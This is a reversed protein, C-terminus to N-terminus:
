KAKRGKAIKICRVLAFILVFLLVPALFILLVLFKDPRRAESPVFTQPVAANEIRRGRVLLRHTNVGYPTCTVLTCFDMDPDIPLTGAEDPLVTNIEDVEYTLVDSLVYLYFIDGVAMKDLHSLLKSSPLGRHGTLFTHTGAGGTPLSTGEMHGVGVQLVGEDTGHYVPLKVDIKGIELVAIVGRGTDMLRNYRATEEATFKFKNQKGLLWQNWERAEELMAQWDVGEAEVDAMYGMVARSQSRSNVLDAVVPYLLVSLAIIVGLVFAARMLHKKM